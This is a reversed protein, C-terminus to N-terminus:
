FGFIRLDFSKWGKIMWVMIPDFQEPNALVNDMESWHPISWCFRLDQDKPNFWYVDTDDEPWPRYKTFIVRRLIASKMVLDKKQHFMIFYPEGEFPDAKLADNLDEAYGKMMENSMDGISIPNHSTNMQLDRYIKGVTDRSPDYKSKQSM